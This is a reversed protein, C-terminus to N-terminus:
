RGQGVGIMVRFYPGAITADPGGTLPLGRVPYGDLKWGTTFPAMLYGLRLGIMAGRGSRAGLLEAGAGLDVVVGGHSLVTERRPDSQGDPDALVDDFEVEADSSEIWLGMGGGGVGLRPYIRFRPSLEAAYGVGLTGYGGGLAVDRGEHEEGGMGLGNWEGGLMLGGAFIRHAGIAIGVASSGFSPYGGAELRTDLEETGIASGGISLYAAGPGLIAQAGAADAQGGLALAFLVGVGVRWTVVEM